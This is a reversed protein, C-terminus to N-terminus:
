REFDDETKMRKTRNFGFAAISGYSRNFLKETLDYNRFEMASEYITYQKYRMPDYNDMIFYDNKKSLLFFFETMDVDIITDIGHNLAFEGVRKVCDMIHFGGIALKDVEGLQKILLEESPYRPEFNLKKNGNKDIATADEFSIDTYIVKDEDKINVGYAKKDPYLAFVVEYNKDRYRKQICENLRQLEAPKERRLISMFYEEIPYLYLFVKKHM